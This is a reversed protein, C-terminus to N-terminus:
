QPRFKQVRRGFGAEATYINGKSDIAINHLSRFEGAMRGPRGISGIMKGDARNLINIQSNGGDAVLLFRQQADNSAVIDAVPGSLSQSPLLFERLFAGNAQFVQM